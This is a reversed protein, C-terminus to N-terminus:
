TTTKYIIIKQQTMFLVDEHLLVFFM